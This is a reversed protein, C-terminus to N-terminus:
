DRKAGADTSSYSSGNLIVEVCTKSPKQGKPVQKTFRYMQGAKLSIRNVGSALQIKGIEGEIELCVEEGAEMGRVQAGSENGQARIWPGEGELFALLALKKRM